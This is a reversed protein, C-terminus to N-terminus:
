WFTVDLDMVPNTKLPSALCRFGHKRKGHLDYPAESTLNGDLSDRSAPPLALDEVEIVEEEEEEGTLHFM